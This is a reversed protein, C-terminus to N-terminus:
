WFCATSISSSSEIARVIISTRARSAAARAARAAGTWASSITM